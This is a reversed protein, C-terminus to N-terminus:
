PYITNFFFIFGALALSLVPWQKSVLTSYYACVLRAVQRGAQSQPGTQTDPLLHSGLHRGPRVM